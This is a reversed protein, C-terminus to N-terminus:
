ERDEMELLMERAENGPSLSELLSRANDRSMGPEAEDREILALECAASAQIMNEGAEEIPGSEPPLITRAGATDGAFEDEGSKEPDSVTFTLSAAEDAPMKQEFLVARTEGPRLVTQYVTEEPDESNLCRIGGASGGAMGAELTIDSVTEGGTILALILTHDPNWPCVATETVIEAQETGGQVSATFPFRNLASDVSYEEPAYFMLADDAIYVPEPASEEAAAYSAEAASDFEEAASNMEPEYAKSKETESSRFAEAASKESDNRIKM